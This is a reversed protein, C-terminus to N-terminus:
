TTSAAAVIDGVLVLTNPLCVTVKSGESWESEMRRRREMWKKLQM